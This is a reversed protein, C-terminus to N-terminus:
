AFPGTDDVVAGESRADGNDNAPLDFINRLIAAVCARKRARWTERIQDNFPLVSSLEEIPINPFAAQAALLPDDGWREADLMVDLVEDTVNM